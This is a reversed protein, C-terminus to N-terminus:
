PKLPRYALRDAYFSGLWLEDGVPMAMATGTFSPDETGARAGERGDDKSRDNSRRLRARVPYGGRDKSRGGCAPENDIMGATILRNDGDLARQRARIGAAARRAAAQRSQEALVRRHAQADDLRRLIRSRRAIDRHRQQGLLETGPLARFAPTGPTWMYVAGTIRGAFADAFSRAPCSSCRRSWRATRSRPSATPKWDTRCSCAGSGPPPLRRPGHTWSSSKLRSVAATTPPTSPTSAPQRGAPPEPWAPGDQAPDLPGPCSAFKARDARTKPAGTAYLNRVTKARTDVLHLGSGAGNRQCDALAHGPGARPRGSEPVGCIFTLGGSPACSASQAAIRSGSGGITVSTLVVAILVRNM